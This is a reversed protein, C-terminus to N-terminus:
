TSENAVWEPLFGALFHPLWYYTVSGVKRYSWESANLIFASSVPHTESFSRLGKPISQTGKMKVEIPFLQENFRLVFDVETQNKTRWYSLDESVPLNKKIEMFLTNKLLAGGDTRISLPAFQKLIQNRIGNDYFFSKPTKTIEKRKNTFYPKLLFNVYTEQLVELYHEVKRRELSLTGSLESINLLNGTQVALLQILRNFPAIEISKLIGKIDKEIYTVFIEELFLKKSEVEKQLVVKPLGGFLVFEQFAKQLNQVLIKKSPVSEGSLDLKNLVKEEGPRLFQLQEYFDLPYVTLTLKRGALSEKIKQHIEISSSGSAIITVEPFNDYIEKFLRNPERLYHFEDIMLCIKKDKKLIGKQRLGATGEDLLQLDEPSEMTFYYTPTSIKKEVMRMLTTKGVQRSGLLIIIREKQLYGELKDLTKRHKADM